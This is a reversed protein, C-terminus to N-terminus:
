VNIEEPHKEPQAYSLRALLQTSHYADLGAVTVTNTAALNVYGDALILNEDVLVHQVEGIVIRTGNLAVPIIEKLKLGLKVSSEKVFPADFGELYEEQFGCAAFESEGAKYRASTQHAAKYFEEKVNNLTYFGSESINKLTEHEPGDPRLVMGIYPPNAGIHFISNFLAINTVGTNNSKTAVMQLSKFGSISNMFTTRYRSPLETIQALTLHKM